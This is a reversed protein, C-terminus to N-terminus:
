RVEMGLVEFGEGASDGGHGATTDSGVAWDDAIVDKGTFSTQVELAQVAVGAGILGEGRFTDAGTAAQQKARFAAPAGDEGVEGSKIWVM